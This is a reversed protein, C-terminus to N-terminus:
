PRWVGGPGPAYVTAQVFGPCTTMSRIAAQPNPLPSPPTGPESRAVAPSSELIAQKMEHISAPMLSYWERAARGGVRWACLLAADCAICARATWHLITRGTRLHVLGCILFAVVGVCLSATM